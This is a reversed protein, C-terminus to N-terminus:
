FLLSAHLMFHLLPHVACLIQVNLRGHAPYPQCSWICGHSNYNRILFSIDLKSSQFRAAKQRHTYQTFSGDSDRINKWYNVYFRIFSSFLQGKQNERKLYSTNDLAGQSTQNQPESFRNEIISVSQFSYLLKDPAEFLSM